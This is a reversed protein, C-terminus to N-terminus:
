WGEIGSGAARRPAIEDEWRGANLWSAPYPVYQPGQQSLTPLLDRLGQVIRDPSGARKVAKPWAKEASGKATKRPYLEWFEGFGDPAPESRKRSTTTRTDETRQGIDETRHRDSAIGEPTADEDSSRDTCHHCDSDTIGRKVHWRKHNGLSGGAAKDEREEEIEARSKNRKLYGPLFYGTETRVALDVSVLRDADREGVKSADPYVLVGIEEAPVHGDSMTRKCYCLMQVYLDRCARADKGFRALRRVEPDEAFGVVLQVFIETPKKM